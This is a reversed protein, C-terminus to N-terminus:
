VRPSQGCTGLGNGRRVVKGGMCLRANEGIGVEIGGEIGVLVMLEFGEFNGGVVVVLVKGETLFIEGIRM